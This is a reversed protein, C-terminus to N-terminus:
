YYGYQGKSLSITVIVIAAIVIFAILSPVLLSRRPYSSGFHEKVYNIHAKGSTFYWVLLMGWYVAAGPIKAIEPLVSGGGVYAIWVLVYGIAWEYSSKAHEAKGLAKWNKAHLIASFIPTFLLSLNASVNPNYLSLIPREDTGCESVKNEETM